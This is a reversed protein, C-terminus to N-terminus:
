KSNKWILTMREELAKIEKKIQEIESLKKSDLMKQLERKIIPEGIISIINECYDLEIPTLVKQNLYKIALDIKSKAFEGMLGDKMFFGHSLLTHINAGFPNIDVKDTANMCNGTKEDKELFIVNQKPLDSLLFPSHSTLIFHINGERNKFTNILYLLLKKQWDPHFNNIPEDLLFIRKEKEKKMINEIYFRINLSEKEGFSLDNYRRNEKDQFDIYFCPPLEEIIYFNDNILYKSEIYFQNIGIFDSEEFEEFIESLKSVRELYKVINKAKELEKPYIHPFRAPIDKEKMSLLKKTVIEYFEQFNSVNDLEIFDSSMNSFYKILTCLYKCIIFLFKEMKNNLNKEIEEVNQKNIDQLSKNIKLIIKIPEFYNGFYEKHQNDMLYYIINQINEKEIYKIDFNKNPYCNKDDVKYSLSADYLRIDPNLMEKENKNRQRIESLKNKGMSIEDILSKNNFGILKIFIKNNSSYILFKEHFSYEELISFLISSKGSGNEGVIATININDPFISVYHKNEDINLIGDKFECRFRPSFNFGQKDINKYKDVWLYVLEM